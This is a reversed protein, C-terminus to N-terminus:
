EMGNIPETPEVGYYDLLFRMIDGFAPAASSEAWIVDKPNRIKVVVIFKPDGVPALGAFTGISEEESYGRSDKSAVQATGTKGGVRYGPVQAQTGHGNEVVSYLMERVQRATTDSIVRRVSKKEYEKREGDPGIVHDVIHPEMLLGGNALVDYSLALQLLTMSIGQGFSATYFNIDRTLYELNALSGYSESPLKIGTRKGFGFRQVYEAFLENGVQREVFITGTNLSKELVQTMTQTGYAKEDSNMIEYGAEVVVGTDVYTTEPDIKGTDLGIALTLPKFVSGSEYVHSVSPNLFTAMDEVQAYHNPDFTPINAMALIKGTGSELVIASAGDADHKEVRERLVREVEYQVGADLTLVLDSGDMAPKFERETIAIWRGQADREQRIIGGEGKLLSEFSAEIGYRGLWTEGDSGVFGVVQGALEGGPYYRFMEPMVHVGKRKEEKIAQAKEEDVRKEVIEFPDELDEFLSFLKEKDKELYESLFNVTASVDEVEKPVVYVTAYKRNVALPYDEGSGNRMYIEGRRPVLASSAMHQDQALAEYFPFTSVQLFYLRAMVICFAFFFGGVLLKVRWDGSRDKKHVIKKRLFMAM